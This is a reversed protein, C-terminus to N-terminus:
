SEILAKLDPAQTFGPVVKGNPLVNTPTGTIDIKQGLEYHDDVKQSCESTVTYEEANVTSGKKVRELVDHRDEACWASVLRNYARSGIGARPYALYRIEIDNEHYQAMHEHLLRCYGCDVDTFVYVVDPDTATEPSYNITSMEPLSSFLGLLAQSKQVQTLNVFKEDSWGYLDGVFAYKGDQKTYVIRGNDMEVMQFDNLPADSVEKSRTGLIKSIEKIADSNGIKSKAADDASVPSLSLALAVTAVALALCKITTAKTRSFLSRM